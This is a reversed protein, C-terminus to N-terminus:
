WNMVIRFVITDPKRGFSTGSYAIYFAVDNPTYDFYCTEIATGSSSEWNLINTLPTQTEYETNYDAYKYAFVTGNNYIENRLKESGERFIKPVTVYKFYVDGNEPNSIEEWDGEEVVVYEVNWNVGSGAPGEPGEPGMPGVPGECAMLLVTTLLLLFLKKM